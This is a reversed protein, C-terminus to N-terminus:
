PSNKQGEEQLTTTLNWPSTNYIYTVCPTTCYRKKTGTLHCRWSGSRHGFEDCGTCKVQRTARGSRETAALIRNKRQRGPGKKKMNPKYCKFGKDVKPWQGRDTISPIIGNYAAQFKEVSYYNSVYMGMNPQRM